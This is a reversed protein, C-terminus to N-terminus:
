RNPIVDLFLVNRYGVRLELNFENQYLTDTSFNKDLSSSRFRKPIKLYEVNLSNPNVIVQSKNVRLNLNYILRSTLVTQNVRLDTESEDLSEVSNHYMYQDSIRALNTEKSPTRIFDQGITKIQQIIWYDSQTNDRNQYWLIMFGITIVIFSTCSLHKSNKEKKPQEEQRKHM